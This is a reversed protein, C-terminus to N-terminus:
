VDAGNPKAVREKRGGYSKQVSIKHGCIRAGDMERIAKEVAGESEYTVFAFDGKPKIQEISGFKKFTDRLDDDRVERSIGGIFVTKAINNDSM